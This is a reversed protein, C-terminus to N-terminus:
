IGKYLNKNKKIDDLMEEAFFLLPFKDLVICSNDVYTFLEKVLPLSLTRLVEADRLRIYDDSAIILNGTYDVTVWKGSSKSKFEVWAHYLKEYNNFPIKGLVLRIDSEEIDDALDLLINVSRGMCKHYRNASLLESKYDPDIIYDSLRRFKYDKYLFYYDDTISIPFNRYLSDLTFSFIVDADRKWVSMEEQKSMFLIEDKLSLMFRNNPHIGSFYKYFDPFSRKIEEMIEKFFLITIHAPIDKSLKRTLENLYPM